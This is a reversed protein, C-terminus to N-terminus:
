SVAGCRVKMRECEGVGCGVRLAMDAAAAARAAAPREDVPPGPPAVEFEEGLPEPPGASRVEM